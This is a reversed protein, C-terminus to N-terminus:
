PDRKSPDEKSSAMAHLRPWLQEAVSWLGVIQSRFARRDFNSDTSLVTSLRIAGKAQDWEFKATVLDRNLALLTRALEASPGAVPDVALYNDICIFITDTRRSYRIVVELTPGGNLARTYSCSQTAAFCHAEVDLRVLEQRVASLYTEGEAGPAADAGAAFLAVAAFLVAAALSLRDM